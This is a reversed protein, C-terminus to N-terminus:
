VGDAWEKYTVVARSSKYREVKCAERDSDEVAGKWGGKRM